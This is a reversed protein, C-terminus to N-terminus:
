LPIIPYGYHKGYLMIKERSSMFVLMISQSPWFSLKVCSIRWLYYKIKSQLVSSIKLNALNRYIEFFCLLCLFWKIMIACYHMVYYEKYWHLIIYISYYHIYYLTYHFYFHWTKKFTFPYHKKLRPPSGHLTTVGIFFIVNM